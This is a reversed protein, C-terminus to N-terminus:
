DLQMKGKEELKIAGAPHVVVDTKPKFFAVDLTRLVVVNGSTHAGIALDGQAHNDVDVGGHISMGFGKWVRDGIDKPTLRQPSEESIGNM